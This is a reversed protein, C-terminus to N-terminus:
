NIESTPLNWFDTPGGSNTQAAQDLLLTDGPKWDACQKSTHPSTCFFNEPPALWCRYGFQSLRSELAHVADWAHEGELKHDVLHQFEFVVLFPRTTEFDVSGLIVDDYGEADISLVLVDRPKVQQQELLEAVSFCPVQIEVIYDEINPIWRKHKLIHARSM